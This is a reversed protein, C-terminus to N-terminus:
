LATVESGEEGYPYLRGEEDRRVTIGVSGFFDMVQELSECGVNSINCRGNGAASLKKGTTEKKEFVAVSAGEAMRASTIAAALGSAGGGIVAIDYSKKM